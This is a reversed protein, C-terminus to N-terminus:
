ASRTDGLARVLYAILLGLGVVFLAAAGVWMPVILGEMDGWVNLSTGGFVRDLTSFLGFSLTLSGVLLLPIALLWFWVRTILRV